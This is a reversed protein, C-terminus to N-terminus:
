EAAGQDDGAKAAARPKKAPKEGGPSEGEDAGSPGPGGEGPQRRVPLRPDVIPTGSNREPAYSELKREMAELRRDSEIQLQAYLLESNRRMQYQMLELQPNRARRNAIRTFIVPATVHTSQDTSDVTYIMPSGGECCLEFPGEVGFEFRDRGKALGLFTVARDPDTPAGKGSIMDATREPNPRRGAALDTLRDPDLRLKEPDQYIWFTVEGPCNVDLVVMRQHKADFTMSHGEPLLFWKTLNFLRQM